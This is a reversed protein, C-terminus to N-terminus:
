QAFTPHVVTGCRSHVDLILMKLTCSIGDYHEGGSLDCVCPATPISYQETCNLPSTDGMADQVARYLLCFTQPYAHSSETIVTASDFTSNMAQLSNATLSFGVGELCLTLSNSHGLLLLITMPPSRCAHHSQSLSSHPAFASLKAVEPM